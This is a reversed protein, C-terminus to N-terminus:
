VKYMNTKAYDLLRRTLLIDKRLISQYNTCETSNLGLPTLKDMTDIVGHKTTCHFPMIKSM